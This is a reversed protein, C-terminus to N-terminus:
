HLLDGPYIQSGNAPVEWALVSLAAIVSVFICRLLPSYITAFYKARAQGCTVTVKSDQQVRGFAISPEPSKETVTKFGVM